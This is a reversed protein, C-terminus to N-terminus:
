LFVPAVGELVAAAMENTGREKSVITNLLERAERDYYKWPIV